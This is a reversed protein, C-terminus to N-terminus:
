PKAPKGYVVPGAGDAWLRNWSEAGKANVHVGDDSLEDPHEKFWTYPDIRPRDEKADWYAPCYKKILPDFVAAMYPGSGNEEPPVPREGKYARYSERCLIPTKGDKAITELIAVLDDRMVDAGGPYPRKQTINNGGIEITVYRARPHRALIEPLAKRLDMTTWGSVAENFLVPDCGFRQRIMKKFTASRISQRQISAGLCLWYDNSGAPDIGYLGVDRLTVAQGPKGTPVIRLRVWRDRYHPQFEYQRLTGDSDAYLYINSLTWTGSQGDRSNDSEEFIGRCKGGLPEFTLMAPTGSAPLKLALSVEQDPQGDIQFDVGRKFFAVLDRAPPKESSAAALPALRWNERPLATTGRGAIAQCGSVALMVAVFLAAYTPM